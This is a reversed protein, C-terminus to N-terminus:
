AFSDYNVLYILKYKNRELGMKREAKVKEESREDFKELGTREVRFHKRMELDSVPFLFSVNNFAILNLNGFVLYNERVQSLASM